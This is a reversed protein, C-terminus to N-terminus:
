FGKSGTYVSIGELLVHFFLLCQFVIHFLKKFLTLTLTINRGFALRGSRGPTLCGDAGTVLKEKEKYSQKSLQQKKKIKYRGTTLSPSELKSDSSIRALATV